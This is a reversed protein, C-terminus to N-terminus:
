AKVLLAQAAVKSIIQEVVRAIEERILRRDFPFSRNFQWFLRDPEADYNGGWLKTM